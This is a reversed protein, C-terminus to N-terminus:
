RRIVKNLTESNLNCWWSLIRIKRTVRYNEYSWGDDMDEHSIFLTFGKGVKVVAKRIVKIELTNIPSCAAQTTLKPM